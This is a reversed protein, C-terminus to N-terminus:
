FLRLDGLEADEEGVLFRVHLGFRGASTNGQRLYKRLDTALGPVNPVSRPAVPLSSLATLGRLIATKGANNRGVLVHMEESLPLYCDDFCAYAEFRFGLLKM